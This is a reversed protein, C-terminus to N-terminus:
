PEMCIYKAAIPATLPCTLYSQSEFHATKGFEGCADVALKMVDSPTGDVNNYCITVSSIDTADQGFSALNRNFKGADYVYPTVSCAGLLCVGAFVVVRRIHPLSIM